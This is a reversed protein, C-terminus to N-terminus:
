ALRSPVVGKIGVKAAHVQSFPESIAARNVVFPGHEAVFGRRFRSLLASSNGDPASSSITGTRNSRM